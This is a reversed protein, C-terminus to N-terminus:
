KLSKITIIAHFYGKEDRFPVFLPSVDETPMYTASYVRRFRSTSYYQMGQPLAAITRAWLDIGKKNRIGLEAEMLQKPGIRPPVLMEYSIQNTDLIRTIEELSVGSVKVWSGAINLDM